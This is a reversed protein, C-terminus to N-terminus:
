SKLTDTMPRDSFPITFYNGNNRIFCDHFLYRHLFHHAEANSLSRFETETGEALGVILFPGTVIDYIEGDEKFRYKMPIDNYKDRIFVVNRAECLPHFAELAGGVANELDDFSKISSDINLICSPKGPEVALMRLNEKASKCNM